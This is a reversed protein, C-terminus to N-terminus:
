NNSFPRAADAEVTSRFSNASIAADLDAPQYRVARGLRIFRIPGNGKVRWQQLCRVSLGLRAAAVKEDVLQETELIM